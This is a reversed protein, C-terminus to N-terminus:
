FDCYPFCNFCMFCFWLINGCLWEFMLNPGLWKYIASHRSKESDKLLKAERETLQQRKKEEELLADVEQDIKVCKDYPLQFEKEYM